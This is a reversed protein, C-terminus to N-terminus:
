KQRSLLSHVSELSTNLRVTVNRSEQALISPCGSQSGPVQIGIPAYPLIFAFPHHPAANVDLGQATNTHLESDTQLIDMPM